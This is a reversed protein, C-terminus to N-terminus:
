DHAITYLIYNIIKIVEDYTHYVSYDFDQFSTINDAQGGDSSRKSRSHAKDVDEQVDLTVVQYNLHREKLKTRFAAVFNRSVMIDVPRQRVLSGWFDLQICVCPLLILFSVTVFNKNFSIRFM